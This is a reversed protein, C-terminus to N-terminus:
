TGAIQVHEHRAISRQPSLNTPVLLVHAVLKYTECATSHMIFLPLNCVYLLAPLCYVIIEYHWKPSREIVSM